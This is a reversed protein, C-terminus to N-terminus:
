ASAAAADYRALILEILAPHAGIPASVVPVGATAGAARVARAFHGEALLYSAVASAQLEALAGRLEATIPLPSVPADLVRELDRAAAALDDVASLHTSGSGVLAVQDLPDSAPGVAADRLREALARSLRSDPGLHRAVVVEPRDRVLDPIDTVVHYGGSLLAPVIVTPGPRAALAAPLDPELVDLFALDVVLEPRAARVRAAIEDLTARGEISRTGHLALLLVPSV